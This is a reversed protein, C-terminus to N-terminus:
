ARGGMEGMQWVQDLSYEHLWHELDLSDAWTISASGDEGLDMVAVEKPDLFGILRDSHTAVVVQSRDSAERMLDALIALLEPHMSVEPEDIMTIAPLNRSKLLSALWLFRLTGESLQHSFFPNRFAKDKWTMSIMGAAVIPFSLAEFGPFAAKLSDEIVEYRDGDSERLNYLFPALDEGNEGPLAAPRLQQPLKVPSRQGVDLVHYQTASILTRRLEEPEQFIKPVQSLCSERSDHEWNPTMLGNKDPDYYHHVGSLSEIHKFPFTYGPTARTLTEEPIVYGQGQPSLGLIYELPLQNPIDMHTKLVINGTSGRTLVEAAGGMGSLTQNLSGRASAALLSIADMFSTKGVGNAGVMVMLPRMEVDVNSLRKFGEIGIHKVKPM